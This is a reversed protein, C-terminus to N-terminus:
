EFQFFYTIKKLIETLHYNMFFISVGPDLPTKFDAENFEKYAKSCLSYRLDPTIYKDQNKDLPECSELGEENYRTINYDKGKIILDNCKFQLINQILLLFLYIKNMNQSKKRM